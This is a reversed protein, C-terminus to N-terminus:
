SEKTLNSFFARHDDTMTGPFCFTMKEEDKSITYTKISSVSIFERIVMYVLSEKEVPFQFVVQGNFADSIVKSVETVIESSAKGIILNFIPILWIPM